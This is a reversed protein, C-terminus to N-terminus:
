RDNSEGEPMAGTLKTNSLKAKLRALGERQYKLSYGRRVLSLKIWWIPPWNIPTDSWFVFAIRGWQVQLMKGCYFSTTFVKFWSWCHGRKHWDIRQLKM